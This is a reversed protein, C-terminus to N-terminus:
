RALRRILWTRLRQSLAALEMAYDLEDM